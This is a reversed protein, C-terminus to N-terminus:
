KVDRNWLELLGRMLQNVFEWGNDSHFIRPAGVYALVRERFMKSVEAASKTELPFLIHFKTLHDMFHGIYKLEGDPSARM